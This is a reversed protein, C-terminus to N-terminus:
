DQQMDREAGSQVPLTKEADAAEKEFFQYESVIEAMNRASDRITQFVLASRHDKQNCLKSMKAGALIGATRLADILEEYENM